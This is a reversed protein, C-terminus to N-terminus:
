GEGTMEEKKPGEKTDNRTAEHPWRHRPSGPGNKEIKGTLRHARSDETENTAIQKRRCGRSETQDQNQLKSKELKL